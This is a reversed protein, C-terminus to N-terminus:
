STAEDPTHGARRILYLLPSISGLGVTMLTYLVPASEGRKRADDWMWVLVMGLAICLDILVQIAAANATAAQLFGLLGGHSYIAYATFGVFDALLVGLGIQKANM